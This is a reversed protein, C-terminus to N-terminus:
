KEESIVGFQCPMHLIPLTIPGMLNHTGMFLSKKGGRHSCQYEM